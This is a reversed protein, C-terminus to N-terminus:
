GAYPLITVELDIDSIIPSVDDPLIYYDAQPLREGNLDYVHINTYDNEAVTEVYLFFREKGPGGLCVPFPSM